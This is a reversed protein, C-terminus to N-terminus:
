KHTMIFVEGTVGAKPTNCTYPWNALTNGLHCPVGKIEYRVGKTQVHTHFNYLQMFPCSQSMMDRKLTLHGEVTYLCLSQKIELLSWGFIFQKRM